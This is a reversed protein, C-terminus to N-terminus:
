VFSTLAGPLNHQAAPPQRAVDIGTGADSKSSELHELLRRIREPSAMRIEGREWRALTNPTVGFEAALGAQTLGLARRRLRLEAPALGAEALRVGMQLPGGRAAM